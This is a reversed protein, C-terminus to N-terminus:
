RNNVIDQHRNGKIRCDEVSLNGNTRMEVGVYNNFIQCDTVSGQGGDFALVGAYGSETLRSKTIQSNSGPGIVINSNMNGFISCDQVRGSGGKNFYIGSSQRGYIQSEEILLEAGDKLEIASYLHSRFVSKRVIPNGGSTVQLGSSNKYITAGEITVTSNHQVFIATITEHHVKTDIIHADSEYSVGIGEPQNNRPSNSELLAQRQKM